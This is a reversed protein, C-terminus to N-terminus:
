VEVKIEGDEVTVPYTKLAKEGRVVNLLQIGPPFNAWKIVEGTRIDFQARHMPCQVKCEDIIKGKTLNAVVHTCNSQTAYIGDKLHYVAVKSDGVVVSKMQGLALESEKCVVHLAM